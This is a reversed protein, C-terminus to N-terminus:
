IDKLWTNLVAKSVLETMKPPVSMGILYKAIAGSEFFYDDPFSGIRKLEIPTLKRPESWHYTASGSIITSAPQEPNQKMVGFWGQKEPFYHQLGQKLSNGPDTKLWYKYSLGSKDLYYSPDEVIPLDTFAEKITLEKKNTELVIKKTSINKQVACIFVRERKQPVNCFAANLLFIQPLYGLNELRRFVLKLYGKANGLLMGKVNELVIVKPKLIEALDLFDFFLDDLVQVAQGERFHKEKGWSEERIGAMSFSSCPPSGDLIDLNYLEKPLDMNLMDKIPAEIFIKPKLNKEYHRRMQPDIDNAGIVNFGARKYGMSSGGGGAFTSFVTFNNKDVNELDSLLWAYKNKTM